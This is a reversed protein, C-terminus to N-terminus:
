KFGVQLHKPFSMSHAMHRCAKLGFAESEQAEQSFLHHGTENLYLITAYSYLAPGLGTQSWM